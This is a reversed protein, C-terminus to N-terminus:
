RGVVCHGRQLGSVHEDHSRLALFVSPTYSINLAFIFRKPVQSSISLSKLSKLSGSSQSTGNSGGHGGGGAGGGRISGRGPGGAVMPSNVRPSRSRLSELQNEIAAHDARMAILASDIAAIDKRLQAIEGQFQKANGYKPNQKYTAEMQLLSNLEKQKKALDQEATAIHHEIERKRPYLNLNTPKELADQTLMAQPDSMDEFKFDGPPIDGSKFREIVICTDKLPDIARMAGVITDHCKTVIPAVEKEKGVCNLISSRLVDIRQEDLRQLGDM